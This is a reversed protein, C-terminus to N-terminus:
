GLWLKNLTLTVVMLTDYPFTGHTLDRQYLSGLLKVMVELGVVVTHYYTLIM